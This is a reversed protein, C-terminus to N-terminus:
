LENQRPSPRNTSSLSQAILWSLLFDMLFTSEVSRVVYAQGHHITARNTKRIWVNQKDRYADASHFWQFSLYSPAADISSRRSTFRNAPNQSHKNPLLWRQYCVDREPSRNAHHEHELHFRFATYERADVGKESHWLTHQEADCTLPADPRVASERPNWSTYIISLLLLILLVFGRESVLNSAVIRNLVKLLLRSKKDWSHKFKIQKTLRFSLEISKNKTLQKVETFGQHNELVIWQEHNRRDLHFRVYCQFIELVTKRCSFVFRHAHIALVKSSSWLQGVLEAKLNEQHLNWTTLSQWSSGVPLSEIMM